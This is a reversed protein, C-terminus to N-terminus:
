LLNLITKKIEEGKLYIGKDLAQSIFYNKSKLAEVADDLGLFTIEVNIDKISTIRSTPPGAKKIVLIDIDSIGSVYRGEATSGAVIIILPDESDISSILNLLDDEIERLPPNKEIVLKLRERLM